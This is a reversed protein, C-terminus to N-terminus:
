RVKVVVLFIGLVFLTEMPSVLVDDRHLETWFEFM